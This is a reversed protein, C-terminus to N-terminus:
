HTVSKSILELYVNSFVSTAIWFPFGLSVPLIHYMIRRFAFCVFSHVFLTFFSM